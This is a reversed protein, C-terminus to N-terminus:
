LSRANVPMCHYIVGEPADDISLSMRSGANRHGRRRDHKVCRKHADGGGLPFDFGEDIPKRDLRHVASVAVSDQLRWGTQEFPLAM